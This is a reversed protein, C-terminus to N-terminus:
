RQDIDPPSSTQPPDAPDERTRERELLPLEAGIQQLLGSLGGGVVQEIEMAQILGEEVRYVVQTQPLSVALGTAAMSPLGVMPLALDNIQTGSIRIFARVDTGSREVDTLNYSFDPMAALLENQLALFENQGLPRTLLGSVIFDPTSVRAALELDGSQLATMFTLVIEIKKDASM